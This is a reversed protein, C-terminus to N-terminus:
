FKWKHGQAKTKKNKKKPIQTEKSSASPAEAKKETEKKKAKDELQTLVKITRADSLDHQFRREMMKKSDQIHLTEILAMPEQVINDLQFLSSTLRTKISNTSGKSVSRSGALHFFRSSPAAFKQIDLGKSLAQNVLITKYEEPMKHDILYALGCQFCCAKGFYSIQKKRTSFPLDLLKSENSLPFAKKFYNLVSEPAEAAVDERGFFYGATTLPYFCHFCNNVEAHTMDIEKKKVQDWLM